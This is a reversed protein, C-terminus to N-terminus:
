HTAPKNTKKMRKVNENSLLQLNTSKLVDSWTTGFHLPMLTM